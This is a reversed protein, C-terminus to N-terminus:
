RIATVEDMLKLISVLSTRQSKLSQFMMNKAMAWGTEKLQVHAPDHKKPHSIFATFVEIDARLNKAMLTNTDKSCEKPWLRALGRSNFMLLIM